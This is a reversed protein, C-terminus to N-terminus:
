LSGLGVYVMPDFGMAVCFRLRLAARHFLCANDFQEVIGGIFSAVNPVYGIKTVECFFM